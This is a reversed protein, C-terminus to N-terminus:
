PGRGELRPKNGSNDYITWANALPKYVKEFNELGRSFRRVVDTPPVNHGGQRVRTAIRRLAIKPSALRLFVIEVHYGSTKWAEIQRVYGLGSLTSEFAFDERTSVLRTLEHLVLRGAAVAARRPEFPSLGAAILDANIFHIIGGLSPLYARAFTTKGAGNPGAIIFCRPKAAAALPLSGYSFPPWPRFRVVSM